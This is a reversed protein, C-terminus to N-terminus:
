FPCTTGDARPDATPSCPCASKSIGNLLQPDNPCVCGNPDLGSKCICLIEQDSSTCDTPTCGIPLPDDVNGGTCIKTSQCTTLNFPTQGYEDCICQQPHFDKTCMMCSERIDDDVCECQEKTLYQVEIPDYPCICDSDDTDDGTCVQCSGRIDNEICGCKSKLFDVLQDATTPCRCSPLNNDKSCYKSQQCELLPYGTQQDPNTDCVCDPNPKNPGTCYFPCTTGDARPDATPSCPCASKSIGNLLQPDNPCVCGNPDLG